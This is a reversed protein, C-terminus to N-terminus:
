RRRGRERAAARGPSRPFRSLRSSCSAGASGCRLRSFRLLAEGAPGTDCAPGAKVNLAAVPRRVAANPVRAASAGYRHKPDLKVMEAFAVDMVVILGDVGQHPEEVLHGPGAQSLPRTLPPFSMQHGGARLGLVVVIQILVNQGGEPLQGEILDTTTRHLLPRDTQTGAVAQGADTADDDQQRQQESRRDLFAHDRDIRDLPQTHGLRAGTVWGSVPRRCTAARGMGVLAFTRAM